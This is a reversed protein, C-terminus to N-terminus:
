QAGAAPAAPVILPSAIPEGSLLRQRELAKSASEAVRDWEPAMALLAAQHEPEPTGQEGIDQRCEAAKRIARARVEILEAERFAIQGRRDTMEEELHRIADVVQDPRDSHRTVVHWNPPMSDAIFVSAVLILILAVISLIVGIRHWKDPEKM